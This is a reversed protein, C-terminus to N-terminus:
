LLIQLVYKYHRHQTRARQLTILLRGDNEPETNEILM